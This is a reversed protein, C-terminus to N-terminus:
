AKRQAKKMVVGVVILASGALLLSVPEPAGTIAILPSAHVPRPAMMGVLAVM